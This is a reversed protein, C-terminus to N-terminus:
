IRNYMSTQSFICNNKNDAEQLSTTINKMMTQGDEEGTYQIKGCCTIICLSATGDERKICEIRDTITVPHKIDRSSDVLYVVADNGVITRELYDFFYGHM